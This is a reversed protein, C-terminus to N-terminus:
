ARRVSFHTHEFTVGADAGTGQKQVVLRGPPQGSAGWSLATGPEGGSRASTTLYLDQVLAADILQQALTRGGVCSLRCVGMQRLRGMAGALDGPDDMVILDIWPRADIGRRLSADCGGSTLVVVRIEPVTFLLGDVLDVGRLTAVIQIPHRSLGLSRRLAVLEPHWVSFVVNGGRITRAGTLVADAAVRSLGEYVLHKDTEGGGLTSPDGAGTNGECSRVFVLSISPLREPLARSLYFPGDFLASSWDNGLPLDNPQHGDFRTTWPALTAGEAEAEKRAAFREFRTTTV